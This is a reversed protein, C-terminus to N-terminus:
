KYILEKYKGKPFYNDKFVVYGRKDVIFYTPVGFVGYAGSVTTTKDLLVPFDLANEKVINDVRYAPEGVDIALLELNEKKLEPYFAKLMRLENRCFPCWTTWFFLIVAQNDKYSSLTFTNQNLDQLKFDMAIDKVKSEDEKAQIYSVGFVSVLVFIFLLKFYKRM